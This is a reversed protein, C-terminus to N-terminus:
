SAGEWTNVLHKPEPNKSSCKECNAPAFDQRPALVLYEKEVTMWKAQKQSGLRVIVPHDTQPCSLSGKHRVTRQIAGNESYGASISGM